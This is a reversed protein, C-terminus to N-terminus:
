LLRAVEDRMVETSGGGIALFRVDRAIREVPGDQVFGAGGLFQVASYAIENALEPLQSKLVAAYARTDAGRDAQTAAHYLLTKGAALRGVLDAVRHRIAQKDWLVGGYAPRLRVSALVAALAAEALGVVQAALCLREHDLGAMMLAFGDGEAGIRAYAPVRCGTLVLEGTDSSHWGSKGFTRGNALGPTDREVAFLSLGHRGPGGTRAVVFFIGAINANTIFTKTGDLLYSDGDRRARVALRTLDSSADPETVALAAVTRGALIGPLWRDIQGATGARALHLASFDTHTGVSSAVGGFTSRALEENFVVAGRVGAGGGGLEPPFSLGLLGLEGLRAFAAPPVRRQREWDPAAPVIDRAVVQRALTRLARHEEALFTADLALGALIRNDGTM